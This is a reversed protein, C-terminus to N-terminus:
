MVRVYTFQIDNATDVKKKSFQSSLSNIITPLCLNQCFKQKKQSSPHSISIRDTVKIILNM